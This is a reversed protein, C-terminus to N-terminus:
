QGAPSVPAVDDVFSAHSLSVSTRGTATDFVELSVVVNACAGASGRPSLRVSAVFSARLRASGVFLDTSRLNFSAVGGPTLTVQREHAFRDPVPTNDVEQFGLIAICSDAGPGSSEVATPEYNIASLRATQLRAIGVLGSKLHPEAGAHATGAGGVAVAVVMSFLLRQRRVSPEIV